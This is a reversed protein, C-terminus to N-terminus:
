SLKKGVVKSVLYIAFVGLGMVLPFDNNGRNNLKHLENIRHITRKSIEETINGTNNEEDKIYQINQLGDPIKCENGILIPIIHKKKDQAYKIERNIWHSKNTTNSTIIVLMLDCNSIKDNIWVKWNKGPKVGNKEDSSIHFEIPEDLLDYYTDNITKKLQQVSNRDEHSHSIFIKVM